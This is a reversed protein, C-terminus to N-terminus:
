STTASRALYEVLREFKQRHASLWEPSGATRALAAVFYLYADLVDHEALSLLPVVGSDWLLSSTHSSDATSVAELVFNELIQSFRGADPIAPSIESAARRAAQLAAEFVPTSQRAEPASVDRHILVHVQEAAGAAQPSQTAAIIYRLNMLLAGAPDGQAELMAGYELFLAPHQGAQDLARRLQLTAGSVDGHFDLTRAYNFHLNADHPHLEVAEGYTALARDTEGSEHECRARLAFAASQWPSASALSATAYEICGPLNGVARSSRALEHLLRADQPRDARLGLYIQIAADFGGAEHLEIAKGLTLDFGADGAHAAGQLSGLGLLCLQFSKRVSHPLRTSASMAQPFLLM